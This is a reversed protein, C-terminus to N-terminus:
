PRGPEGRLNVRRGVPTGSAREADLVHNLLIVAAAQDIVSRSRRVDRGAHHLGRQAQRTTLREDVLRVECTAAAALEAAFQEAAEAAPGRLGAMTLPLGVVIAVADYDVALGAIAPITASDRILTAEPLALVRSADSRAVGVRVSGVDVAILVGRPPSTDSGDRHDGM